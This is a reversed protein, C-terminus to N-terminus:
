ARPRRTRSGPRGARPARTEESLFLTKGCNPCTALHERITTGVGAPHTPLSAAPIAPSLNEAEVFIEDGCEPCECALFLPPAALPDPRGEAGRPPAVLAAAGGQLARAAAEGERARGTAEGQRARAASTGGPRTGAVERVVDALLDVVEVLIRGEESASGLGLGSALGKLYAARSELDLGRAGLGAM